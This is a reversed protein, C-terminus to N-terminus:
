QKSRLQIHGEEILRRQIEANSLGELKRMLMRRLLISDLRKGIIEKNEDLLFMMPTNDVGYFERFKSANGPDSVNIWDYGKEAVYDKWEQSVIYEDPDGNIGRLLEYDTSVAYVALGSDKYRQYLQYIEPTLEKCHSCSTAYFYLLTYEADIAHLSQPKGTNDFMILDKSEHNLGNFRHRTYRDYIRKEQEKTLWDVKETLYYNEALTVFVAEMGMINNNEYEAMIWTLTSKFVEPHGKEAKKLVVNAWHAISDPHQPSFNRGLFKLVKNKYLPTRVIRPDSFDINNWYHGKIYGYRFEASDAIARKPEPAAPSQMLHILQTTLSGKHEKAFARQEAQQKEDLANALARLAKMSDPNQPNNEFREQLRNMAAGQRDRMRQFTNYVENEPSKRVKMDHVPNALNTTISYGRENPSHVFEFYGAAPFAVLYVGGLLEDEQQVTFRGKRDTTFTDYVYQVGGVYYGLIAQTDPMDKVRITFDTQATATKHHFGAVFILLLSLRATELLTNKLMDANQNILLALNPM